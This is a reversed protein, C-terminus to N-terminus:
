QPPENVWVDSQKIREILAQPDLKHFNTPIVFLRTSQPREQINEVTITAGDEMKIQLPFKLEPDIWGVIDRGPSSIARYVAAQRGDVIEEGIHECRWGNSSDRRQRSKGHDAM